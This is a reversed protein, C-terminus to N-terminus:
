LGMIRVDPWRGFTVSRENNLSGGDFGIAEIRENHAIHSGRYMPIGYRRLKLSHPSINQHGLTPQNLKLTGGIARM